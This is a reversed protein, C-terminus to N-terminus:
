KLHEWKSCELNMVSRVEHSVKRTIKERIANDLNVFEKAKKGAVLDYFVTESHAKYNFANSYIDYSKKLTNLYHSDLYELIKGSGVTTQHGKWLSFSYDFIAIDSNEIINELEKINRIAYLLSVGKAFFVGVKELKNFKEEITLHYSPHSLFALDNMYTSNDAGRWDVMELDVYDVSINYHELFRKCFEMGEICGFLSSGLEYFSKNKVLTMGIYKRMNLSVDDKHHIYNLFLPILEKENGLAKSMKNYGIIDNFYRAGMLWDYAKQGVRFDWIKKVGVNKDIEGFELYAFPIESM